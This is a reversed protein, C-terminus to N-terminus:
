KKVSAIYSTGLDWQSNALIDNTRSKRQVARVAQQGSQTDRTLFKKGPNLEVDDPDVFADVNMETPPNVIWVLYDQHLCMLQNMAEWVSLVGELLGRGGFRLLDPLSSFSVGPWRLTRYPVRKPKQIVRGGAITYTARPLLMQGQPDLVIGWFESTLIM